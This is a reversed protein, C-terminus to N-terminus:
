RKEGCEPTVPRGFVRAADAPALSFAEALIRMMAVQRASAPVEGYLGQNIEFFDRLDIMTLM